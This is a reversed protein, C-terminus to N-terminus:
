ELDAGPPDYFTRLGLKTDPQSLGDSMRRFWRDSLSLRVKPAQDVHAMNKDNVDWSQSMRYSPPKSSSSSRSPSPPFTPLAPVTSHLPPPTGYM